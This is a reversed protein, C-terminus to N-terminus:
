GFDHQLLVAAHPNRQYGDIIARAELYFGGSIEKRDRIVRFIEGADGAFGEGMGTAMISHAPVTFPFQAASQRDLSFPGPQNWTAIDQNRNSEVFGGQFAPEQVVARHILVLDVRSVLRPENGATLIVVVQDLQQGDQGTLSGQIQVQVEVGPGDVLHELKNFFGM